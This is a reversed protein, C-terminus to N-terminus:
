KGRFGKDKLTTVKCNIENKDETEKLVGSYLLHTPPFDVIARIWFSVRIYVHEGLFSPYELLKVTRM